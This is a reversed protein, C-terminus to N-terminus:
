RPPRPQQLLMGVRRCRRNIPLRAANESRRVSPNSASCIRPKSYAPITPFITEHPRPQHLMRDHFIAWCEWSAHLRSIYRIGAFRSSETSGDHEYIYRSVEQTFRRQASTLLSLDIETIGLSIALDALESRLWTLADASAVDVFRLSADLDTM